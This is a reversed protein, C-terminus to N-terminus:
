NTLQPTLRNSSKPKVNKWAIQDIVEFNNDLLAFAGAKVEPRHNKLEMAFKKRREPDDFGVVMEAHEFASEIEDVLAQHEDTIRRATERAWEAHEAPLEKLIADLTEDQLAEWVTKENLGTVIRHLRVYDEQKAKVAVVHGGDADAWSYNLVYGEANPREMDLMPLDDLPGSYFVKTQRFPPCQDDVIPSFLDGNRHGVFGLSVIDEFDYQLVIRNDDYVAEFISTADSMEDLMLLREGAGQYETRLLNTAWQAQESQFSGRTAFAPLGDPARFLLLLSGDTKDTVIVDADDPVGARDEKGQPEDANFFKRPGSAVVTADGDLDRVILGRCRRLTHPWDTSVARQTYNLIVLQDDDPHHKVAVYGDAILGKLEHPDLVDRLMLTM